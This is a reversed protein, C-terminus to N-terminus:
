HLEPAPAKVLQLTLRLRLRSLLIKTTQRPEHASRIHRIRLSNCKAQSRQASRAALGDHAARNPFPQYKQRVNVCRLSESHRLQQEPSCQVVRVWMNSRPLGLLHKAQGQRIAVGFYLCSGCPQNM